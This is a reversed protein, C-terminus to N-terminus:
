IITSKALVRLSLTYSKFMCLENNMDHYTRRFLLFYFSPNKKNPKFCFKSSAFRILSLLM